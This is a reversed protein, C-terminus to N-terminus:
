PMGKAAIQTWRERYQGYFHVVDSKVVKGTARNFSPILRNNVNGTFRVPGGTPPGGLPVFTGVSPDGNYRFVKGGQFILRDFTGLSYVRQDWKWIPDEEDFPMLRLLDWLVHVSSNGSDFLHLTVAAPQGTPSEWLPFIFRGLDVEFWTSVPKQTIDVVPGLVVDNVGGQSARLQVSAPGAASKQVVGKVKFPGDYGLSPLVKHGSRGIAPAGPEWATREPPNGVDDFTTGGINVSRIGMIQYISQRMVAYALAGTVPTWSLRVFNSTSLTDPADTVTHMISFQTWGTPLLAAIAYGYITTSAIGVITHTPSPPVVAAPGAAGSDLCNGGSAASNATIAASNDATFSECEVIHAFGGTPRVRNALEVRSIGNSGPEVVTDLVFALEFRVEPEMDGRIGDLDWAQGHSGDNSCSIALDSMMRQAYPEPGAFYIEGVDAIRIKDITRYLRVDWLEGPFPSTGATNAGLTVLGGVGGLGAGAIVPSTSADDGGTARVNDVWLQLGVDGWGVFVHHGVVQDFASTLAMSVTKTAPGTTTITWTLVNGTTKQLVMYGNQEHLAVRLVGDNYLFSPRVWFSIFGGARDFDMVNPIRYYHNPTGAEVLFGGATPSNGTENINYLFPRWEGTFSGDCELVLAGNVIVAQADSINSWGKWDPPYHYSGQRILSYRTHSTQGLRIKLYVPKSDSDEHRIEATGSGEALTSLDGVKQLLDARNYGFITTPLTMQRNGYERYLLREGSRSRSIGSKQSAVNPYGPDWANANVKYGPTDYPPIGTGALLDLVKEGNTMLLIDAL